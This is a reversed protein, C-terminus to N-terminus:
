IHYSRISKIYSFRSLTSYNKTSNKIQCAKRSGKKLPCYAFVKLKPNVSLSRLFFLEFNPVMRM